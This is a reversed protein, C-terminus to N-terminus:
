DRAALCRAKNRLLLLPYPNLDCSVFAGIRTQSARPHRVIRFKRITAGPDRGGAGVERGEGARVSEAGDLVGAGTQRGRQPGDERQRPLGAGPRPAGRPLEPPPGGLEHHPRPGLLRPRPRPQAAAEGDARAGAPVAAALRTPDRGDGGALLRRQPLCATITALMTRFDQREMEYLPVWQCLVGNDTLHAAASRYFEQTFLGSVGAVWINPPESTIVDFKESTGDIYNRGDNTVVRVRPDELASENYPAFRLRAADVVLPDIEAVTIREPEPHHVVARLTFAGGLGIALVNRPNPHYLMPLHGLLLQTRNDELSTSADTKGNNKLLLYLASASSRSRATSARSGRDDGPEAGGEPLGRPQRRAARPLLAGLADPFADRGAVAPGGRRAPRRLDGRAGLAAPRPLARPLRGGRRRLDALTALMLGSFGWAPLLVFEALGGRAGRGPHQRLLGPRGLGRAGGGGPHRDARRAPFQRGHRPHRPRRHRHDGASALQFAYYGGAGHFLAFYARTFLGDSRFVLMGCLAIAAYLYAVAAFPDRIRDIWRSMLLSGAGIGTLFGALM